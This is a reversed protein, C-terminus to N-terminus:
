EDLHPAMIAGLWENTELGLERLLQASGRPGISNLALRLNELNRDSTSYRKILDPNERVAPHRQLVSVAASAYHDVLEPVDSPHPMGNPMTRRRRAVSPSSPPASTDNASDAVHLEIPVDTEPLRAVDGLQVSQLPRGVRDLWTGALTWVEGARGLEGGPPTLTELARRGSGRRVEGAVAEKRGHVWVLRLSVAGDPARGFDLLEQASSDLGTM